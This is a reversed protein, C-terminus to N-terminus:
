GFLRSWLSGRPGQQEQELLLKEIRRQYAENVAQQEKLQKQLDQMQEKLGDTEEQIAKSVVVSVSSEMAAQLEAVTVIRSVPVTDIINMAAMIQNRPIVWMYNNAGPLARKEAKYEKARIRRKVTQESIKLAEAAEKVTMYKDDHIDSTM